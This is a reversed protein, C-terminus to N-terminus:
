VGFQMPFWGALNGDELQKPEGSGNAVKVDSAERCATGGKQSRSRRLRGRLMGTTAQNWCKRSRAAEPM